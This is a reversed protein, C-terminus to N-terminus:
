GNCLATNTDVVATKVNPDGGQSGQGYMGNWAANSNGDVFKGTNISDLCFYDNTNKLKAVVAYTAPTSFCAVYDVGRDKVIQAIAKVIVPDAGYMGIACNNSLPISQSPAYSGSGAGDYYLQAQNRVALMNTQVAKDIAKNKASTLSAIIITTLVAIIAIVVLLEILTFGAQATLGGKFNKKMYALYVRSM